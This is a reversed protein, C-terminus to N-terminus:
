RYTGQSPCEPVDESGDMAAFPQIGTKLDDPHDALFTISTPDTLLKPTPVPPLNIFATAGRAHADLFERIISFEQKKPAAALQFWFEPLQDDQTVDLYSKLSNLM